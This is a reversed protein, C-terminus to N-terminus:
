HHFSISEQSDVLEYPGGMIILTLFQLIGLQNIGVVRVIAMNKALGLM